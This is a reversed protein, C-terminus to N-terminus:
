WVEVPGGRHDGRRRRRGDRDARRRADVTEMWRVTEGVQRRQAEASRRYEENEEDVRARYGDQFGAAYTMPDPEGHEAEARWRRDAAIFWAVQDGTFRADPDALAAILRETPSAPITDATV